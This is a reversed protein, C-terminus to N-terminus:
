NNIKTEYMLATNYLIGQINYKNEMLYVFSYYLYQINCTLCKSIYGLVKNRGGQSLQRVTINHPVTTHM